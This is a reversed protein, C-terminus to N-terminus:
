LGQLVFLSKPFSSSISQYGFSLLKCTYIDHLNSNNIYRYSDSGSVRVYKKLSTLLYYIRCTNYYNEIIPQDSYNNLYINKWLTEFKSVKYLTTDVQSWNYIDIIEGHSLINYYVDNM